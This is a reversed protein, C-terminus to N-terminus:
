SAREEPIDMNMPPSHKKVIDAREMRRARQDPNLHVCAGTAGHKKKAIDWLTTAVFVIWLSETEGACVIEVGSGCPRTFLYNGGGVPFAERSKLNLSTYDYHRGSAGEFSFLSM